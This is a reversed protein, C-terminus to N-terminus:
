ILSSIESFFNLTALGVTHPTQSNTFYSGGKDADWVVVNKQIKNQVPHVVDIRLVKVLEYSLFLIHVIFITTFVNETYGSM